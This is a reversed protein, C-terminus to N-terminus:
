QSMMHVAEISSNFFTRTFFRIIVIDTEENYLIAVNQNHDYECFYHFIITCTFMTVALQCMNHLRLLLVKGCKLRYMKSRYM